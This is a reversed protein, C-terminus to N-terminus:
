CCQWSALDTLANVYMMFSVPRQSTLRIYFLNVDHRYHWSSTLVSTSLHAHEEHTHLFTHKWNPVSRQCHVPTVFTMRYHTGSTRLRWVSRETRTWPVTLRPADTSRLSRTTVQRRQRQLLEDIYPPISTWLAKHTIVVIKYQVRQQDPLWRLSQLLPRAHVCIRQQDCM